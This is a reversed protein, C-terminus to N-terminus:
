SQAAIVMEFVTGQGVTMPYTMRARARLDLVSEGPRVKLCKVAFEVERDAQAQDRGQYLIPYDENFHQLFWTM